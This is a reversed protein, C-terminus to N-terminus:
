SRKRGRGWFISVGIGILILPWLVDWGIWWTLGLNSLLIILGLAVLIAGAVMPGRGSEEPSPEPKEHQVGEPTIPTLVGGSPMVIALIIYLLVGVGNALALAVFIVRVLVPDMDFYDALGGCVGWIMRNTASRYLKKAM